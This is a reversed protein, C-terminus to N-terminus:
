VSTARQKTRWLDFTLLGSSRPFVAAWRAKVKACIFLDNSFRFRVKDVLGHFVEFKNSTSGLALDDYWYNDIALSKRFRLSLTNSFPSQAMNGPMFM